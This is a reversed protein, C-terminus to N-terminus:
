RAQTRAATEIADYCLAAFRGRHIRSRRRDGPREIHRLQHEVTDIWRVPVGLKRSALGM